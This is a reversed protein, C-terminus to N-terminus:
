RAEVVVPVTVREVWKEPPLTWWLLTDPDEVKPTQVAGDLEEFSVNANLRDKFLLKIHDLDKTTNPLDILYTARIRSAPDAAAEMTWKMAAAPGILPTVRTPTAAAIVPGNPTAGVAPPKPTIAAIVTPPVDKSLRWTREYTVPGELQALKSLDRASVRMVLRGERALALVRGPTLAPNAPAAEAVKDPETATANPNIAGANATDAPEDKSAVATPKSAETAPEPTQTNKALGGSKGPKYLLSSWYIGGAILLAIGAALALAPAHRQAWGASKKTKTATAISIPPHEYVDQGNALGVLAERELAALVRDMLEAPAREERVSQLARRNAQMQQVREVTGPRSRKALDAEEFKSLRGEIWGLMASEDLPPPTPSNNTNSAM